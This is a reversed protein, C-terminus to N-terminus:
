TFCTERGRVTVGVISLIVKVTGGTVACKFGFQTKRAVYPCMFAPIDTSFQQPKTTSPYTQSSMMMLIINLEFLKALIKISFLILYYKM